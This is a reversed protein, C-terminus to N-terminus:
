NNGKNEKRVKKLIRQHAKLAQRWTQTRIVYEPIIVGNEFVATEFLIPDGEGTVSHDIVLFATSIKVNNIYTRRVKNCGDVYSRVWADGTHCLIPKRHKLM